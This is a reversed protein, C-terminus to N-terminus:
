EEEGFVRVRDALSLGLAELIKRKSDLRCSYGKEVRDITLVSLGARRALEAKSLLREIRYRRVNNPHTPQPKSRTAASAPPESANALVVASGSGGESVLDPPGSTEATVGLGDRSVGAPIRESRETPAAESAMRESAMREGATGDHTRENAAAGASTGYPGRERPASVQISTSVAQVVRAAGFPRPHTQRESSERIAGFHMDVAPQEQSSM